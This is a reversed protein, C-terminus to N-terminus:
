VTAEAPAAPAVSTRAGYHQRSAAVALVGLSIGVAPGTLLAGYFAASTAFVVSYGAWLLATIPFGLSVSALYLSWDNRGLDDRASIRKVIAGGTVLAGVTFWTLTVRDFGNFHHRYQWFLAAAGIAGSTAFALEIRPTLRRAPHRASRPSPAFRAVVFASSPALYGLVAAGALNSIEQTQHPWALGFLLYGLRLFPATCLLAFMYSMLIQHAGIQRQRIALWGLVAAATTGIALGWLQLTFAPGDFTGDPGVIVLFTMAAIMAVIVTPVLIRGLRRHIAIRKRSRSSLQFVALSIAAAALTTHAVLVAANDHYRTSQVAYISGPGLAQRNGVVASYAHDWLAPASFFFRSMYEFAMPAYVLAWAAVAVWGIKALRDRVM